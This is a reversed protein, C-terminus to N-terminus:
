RARGDTKGERYPNQVEGDPDGHPMPERWALTEYCADWAAAERERVTDMLASSDRNCDDLLRDLEQFGEALEDYAALLRTAIGAPDGYYALQTRARAVAEPETM